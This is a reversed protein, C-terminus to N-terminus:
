TMHGIGGGSFRKLKLTVAPSIYLARSHIRTPSNISRPPKMKRRNYIHMTAIKQSMNM